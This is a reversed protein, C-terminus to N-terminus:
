DDDGERVAKIADEVPNKAVMIKEGYHFQRGVEDFEEVPITVTVDRVTGEVERDYRLEENTVRGPIKDM